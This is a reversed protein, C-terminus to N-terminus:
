VRWFILSIDLLDMNELDVVIGSIHAVFSSFFVTPIIADWINVKSMDERIVEIAKKAAPLLSRAVEDYVAVVQEDEAHRQTESKGLVQAGLILMILM